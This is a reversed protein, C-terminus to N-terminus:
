VKDWYGLTLWEAHQIYHRDETSLPM